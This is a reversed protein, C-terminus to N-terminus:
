SIKLRGLVSADIVEDFGSSNKILAEVAYADGANGGSTLPTTNDGYFTNISISSSATKAATTVFKGKKSTKDSKPFSPPYRLSPAVATDPIYYARQNRISLGPDLNM